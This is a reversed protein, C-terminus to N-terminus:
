RRHIRPRSPDPASGRLIGELTFADVVMSGSGRTDGEFEGLDGSLLTYTFQLTGTAMDGGPFQLWIEEDVAASYLITGDGDTQDYTSRTAHYWAETDLWAMPEQPGSWMGMDLGTLLDGDCTASLTLQLNALGYTGYADFVWTGSRASDCSPPAIAPPGTDDPAATDATLPPTCALALILLTM